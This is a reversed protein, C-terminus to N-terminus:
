IMKFKHGCYTCVPGFSEFDVGDSEECKPCMIRRLQGKDTYLEQADRWIENFEDLFEAIIKKDTSAVLCEYNSNLAASTWNVSGFIVKNRSVMFKHHMNQYKGKARLGLSKIELNSQYDAFNIVKLLEKSIIVESDSGAPRIIDSTNLLLRTRRNEKTREILATAIDPHTFYAVAVSIFETETKIVSLIENLAETNAKGPRLFITKM